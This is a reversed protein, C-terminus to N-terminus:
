QYVIRETLRDDGLRYIVRLRVQLDEEQIRTLSWIAEALTPFTNQASWANTGPDFVELIYM